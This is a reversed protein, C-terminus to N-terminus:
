KKSDRVAHLARLVSLQQQDSMESFYRLAESMAKQSPTKNDDAVDRKMEHKVEAFMSVMIGLYHLEWWLTQKLIKVGLRKDGELFFEILGYIFTFVMGIVHIVFLLEIAVQLPISM